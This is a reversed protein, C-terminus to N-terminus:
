NKTSSLALVTSTWSSDDRM